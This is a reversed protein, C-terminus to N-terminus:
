CVKQEKPVMSARTYPSLSFYDKVSDERTKDRDILVKNEDVIKRRKRQAIVM